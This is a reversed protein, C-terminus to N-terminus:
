DQSVCRIGNSYGTVTPTTLSRGAARLYLPNFFWSGGRVVRHSWDDINTFDDNAFTIVTGPGMPNNTPSVSYYGSNYEDACWECVNGAMDYLGYGNAPYSGVPATREYGDDASKDSWSINTNKDAFNCQTGDPDHDGWPFKKEVLGGRAAKEWQAETPLRKGHFQAYAAAGYWSVEIVPHDEYGSKPSYTSGVKEILCDPDDTDLLEHGAADSNKGYANLFEAYQSNTVEYKDMYFADLYVTHRPAEDEYWSAQPDSYWQKTWEVLGPIDTEDTGMEFEGAPILAMDPMDVYGDDATVRIRYNAGYVDPVDAGADWVIHKGAGPAIGNGVDGTFSSASVTFTSGGDDSVAVSITLTDGDSDDVDYTIDVLTTGTRQASSVNSVVPPSNQASAPLVAVIISMLLVISFLFIRRM